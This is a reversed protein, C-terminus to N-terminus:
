GWVVCCFAIKLPSPVWLAVSRQRGCEWNHLEWKARCDPFSFGRKCPSSSGFTVGSFNNIANGCPSPEWELGLPQYVCKGWEGLHFCISESTLSTACVQLPAGSLSPPFAATHNHPLQQASDWGGDHTWLSVWWEGDSPTEGSPNVNEDGGVCVDKVRGIGLSGLCSIASCHFRWSIDPWKGSELPIQASLTQNYSLYPKGM